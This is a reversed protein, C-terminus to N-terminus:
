IQTILYVYYIYNCLYARYIYPPIISTLHAPLSINIDSIMMVCLRQRLASHEDRAYRKASFCLGSRRRAFFINVTWLASYVHTIYISYRSIFSLLHCYIVAFDLALFRQLLKASSILPFLRGRGRGLLPSESFRSTMRLSFSPDRAPVQGIVSRSQRLPSRFTTESRESHCLM